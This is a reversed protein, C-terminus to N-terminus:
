GACATDNNYASLNCGYRSLQKCDTHSTSIRFRFMRRICGNDYVPLHRPLDAFRSSDTQVIRHRSWDRGNGGVGEFLVALALAVIVLM